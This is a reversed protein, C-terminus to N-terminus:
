QADDLFSFAIRRNARKGAATENDALPLSEGYGVAYLRQFGIGREILAEVVAEARAVSLALNADNDGDSDTHGEVNVAADPCAALYAALEDVASMSDEAIRTSGSQFLIANRAAFAAVRQRCIDLPALLTVDTQWNAASPLSALQQLVEDRRAANEVRGTLRYTTGELGFEGSELSALLRIGADVNTIFDAPLDSRVTLNDTPVDGAVVAFYKRANDAPMAGDLVIAGGLPKTASFIFDRVSAPTEVPPTATAEPVSAVETPAAEAAPAAAADPVPEPAGTPPDIEKRWAGADGAGSLAAVALKADAETRPTGALTWANAEFKVTGTTLHGLAELGALVDGIFGAPEGSAIETADASVDGARVAVFDKMDASAVYGSLSVRGDATKTAMWRYPAVLPAADLAQIALSWGSADVAAQLKGEVALRDASTQVKGSLTWASGNFDVRGEDLAVLADVAALAGDVFNDPQGSGLISNDKVDPGARGVLVRKMEDTPVFGELTIAGDATKAAHWLYPSALPIAEPVDAKAVEISVTWGADRLGAASVANDVAVGQEPTEVVGSMLWRSGDYEVAGSQLLPLVGLAAVAQEEFGPPNGDAFTTADEGLGAAAAKLANRARQSPVYGSMRLQGSGSKEATWTFPSALPPKVDATSLLLGQPAGLALATEVAAFDAVTSARGEISVTTDRVSFRGESLHSLLELGFDIASDFREPAGRGLDLGSADVDVIADLRERTPADPVFGDLVITGNSITATFEYGDVRPPDLDVAVGVPTMALRITEATADDAPAGALTATSDSIDASGRELLVLNELLLRARDEFGDPAGSALTLSTSVPRGGVGAARLEDAFGARSSFGSVRVVSGDFEAKWEFPTAVAPIISSSLLEVGAPLQAEALLTLEDFAEASKARGSVTLALDSLTVQGEDFQALYQLGHNVAAEWQDRPPAGSLIRLSDDTSATALAIQAHASEDPVGGSLSVVGDAIKATFPFPSVYEALVVKSAVSRVGHVAAIRTVADDIAQQEMATGSVIADRGDFSVSAWGREESSLTQTARATLDDNVISATASVALSTGGVVTVLAPVGWRLVIGNM